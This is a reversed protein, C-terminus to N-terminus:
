QGELIGELRSANYAELIHLYEEIKLLASDWCDKIYQASTRWDGDERDCNLPEPVPLEPGPVAIPVEVIVDQYEIIPKCTKCGVFSFALVAVLVIMLPKHYSKM